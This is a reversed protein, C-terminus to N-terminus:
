QIKCVLGSVEPDEADIQNLRIENTTLWQFVVDQSIGHLILFVMLLRSSLAKKLLVNELIDYRVDLYSGLKVALSLHFSPM